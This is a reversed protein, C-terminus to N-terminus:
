LEKLEINQFFIAVLAQSMCLTGDQSLANSQCLKLHLTSYQQFNCYSHIYYLPLLSLKGM